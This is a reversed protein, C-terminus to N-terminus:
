VKDQMEVTLLEKNSNSVVRFELNIDTQMGVLYSGIYAGGGYADVRDYSSNLSFNGTGVVLATIIEDKGQINTKFRLAIPTHGDLILNCIDFYSTGCYPCKDVKLEIPAGCNICNREQM